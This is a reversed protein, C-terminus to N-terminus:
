HLLSPWDVLWHLLLSLWYLILSLWDVFWHLLSLAAAMAAASEASDAVVVAEFNRAVFHIQEVGANSPEPELQPIWPCKVFVALVAVPRM